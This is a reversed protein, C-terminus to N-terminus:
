LINKWRRKEESPPFEKCSPIKESDLHVRAIPKKSNWKKLFRWLVRVVDDVVRTTYNLIWEIERETECEAQAKGCHGGSFASIKGTSWALPFDLFNDISTPTNPSQSNRSDLSSLEVSMSRCLFVSIRRWHIPIDQRTTQREQETTKKEWYLELRANEKIYLVHINFFSSHFGMCECKQRIYFSQFFFLSLSLWHLALHFLWLCLWM